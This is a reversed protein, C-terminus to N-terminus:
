CVPQYVENLHWKSILKCVFSPRFSRLSQRDKGRPQWCSDLTKFLQFDKGFIKKPKRISARLSCLNGLVSCTARRLSSTPLVTFIWTGPFCSFLCFFHTSIQPPDTIQSVWNRHYEKFSHVRKVGGGHSPSFWSWDGTWSRLSFALLHLFSESSYCLLYKYVLSELYLWM